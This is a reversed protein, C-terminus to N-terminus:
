PSWASGNWKLVQGNTAGSRSIKSLTNNGDAIKSTTVANNSIEASGVANAIIQLNSFTGSVDGGSTSSVVIDDSADTDGTSSIIGSSISIGTGASYETNADVSPSWASGNWKLVQGNTAGSQSIKSLTINGDAIKSTLIANDSIENSGVANAVIQANDASGILDGGMTVTGGGSPTIWSLVGATTSSLVQGNSTPASEPLTYTIDASINNPARLGVYNVGNPFNGEANYQEYFRLSRPSNDNNALWFDVNGFVATNAASITMNRTGMVNNAHFGFSRDANTDLTLGRGGPISSYDGGATNRFGGGVFSYDGSATNIYGDGVFSYDGSATNSYGGGVFSATGSATNHYGGGVFSSGDSATNGYGGSVTSYQGSATNNAGGSVTSVFGSATNGYGGGIVSRLGSAVENANGRSMQWDVANNGRKNGGTTTGDPIDAMIAGIGRPSLVFDINAENGFPQIRHAPGAANPAATNRTESFHTLGGSADGWTLVGSGNTRLFQGNNGDDPPLTYVINASQNTTKLITSTTNNPAEIKIEPTGGTNTIFLSQAVTLKSSTTEDGIAVNGTTGISMREANNTRFSLPQANLTGIFKGAGVVNGSLGWGDVSQWSLVGSGDSTLVDGNNGDNIPLTYIVNNSLQPSKFATYQTGGNEMIRLEGSTSSTPKIVINGDVQANGVIHLREAPSTTGMGINGNSSLIRMRETNNTRIVLPFNNSTGLWSSANANTNGALLWETGQNLIGEYRKENSLGVILGGEEDTRIELGDSAKMLVNGQIGNISSVVGGELEGAKEAYMAKETIGAQMAYPVATLKTRTFEGSGQFSIGIWADEPLREPLPFEAGLIVNFLGHQFYVRQEEQWLPVSSGVSGYLAFTLSYWGDSIKADGQTVIGQYSIQRSSQAQTFNASSFTIIGAIFCVRFVTAIQM